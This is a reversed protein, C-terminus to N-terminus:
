SWKVERMTSEGFTKPNERTSNNFPTSRDGKAIGIENTGFEVGHPVLGVALNQDSRATTLSSLGVPVIKPSFHAM